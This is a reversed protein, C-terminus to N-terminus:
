NQKSNKHITTSNRLMQRQKCTHTHSSGQKPTVITLLHQDKPPTCSGGETRCKSCCSCNSSPLYLMFMEIVKLYLKMSRLYTLLKYYKKFIEHINSLSQLINSFIANQSQSISLSHSLSNSPSHSLLNSPSHSLSNSLSISPSNILSYKMSNSLSM